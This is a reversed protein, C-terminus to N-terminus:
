LLVIDAKMHDADSIVNSRKLRAIWEERSEMSVDVIKYEPNSKADEYTPPLSLPPAAQGVEEITLDFELSELDRTTPTIAPVPAAEAAAAAGSNVQNSLAIAVQLQEDFSMGSYSYDPNPNNPNTVISTEDSFRVNKPRTDSQPGPNDERREDYMNSSAFHQNLSAKTAQALRAEFDPSGTETEMDNQWYPTRNSSSHPNYAPNTITISDEPRLNERLDMDLMPSYHKNAYKVDVFRGSDAAIWEFPKGDVLVPYHVHFQKLKKNTADIFVTYIRKKTLSKLGFNLIGEDHRIKNKINRNEWLLKKKELEHKEIMATIEEFTLSPIKDLDDDNGVADPKVTVM